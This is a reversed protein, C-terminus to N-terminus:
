DYCLLGDMIEAYKQPILYYKYGMGYCGNREASYVSPCWYYAQEEFVLEGALRYFIHNEEYLLIEAWKDVSGRHYDTPSGVATDLAGVMAANLPLQVLCQDECYFEAYYHSYDGNILMAYFEAYKSALVYYNSIINDYETQLYVIEYDAVGKVEYLSDGFLLKAFFSNGTVRAEAVVCSGVSCEYGNMPLPIYQNGCFTLSKYDEAIVCRESGMVSRYLGVFRPFLWIFSLALLVALLFYIKRSLRRKQQGAFQCISVLSQEETISSAQDIYEGDLLEQVSVDLVFALDPLTEVDPYGRGTEWRSVAKNTVGIKEALESQTLGKQKRLVAILAGTKKANM